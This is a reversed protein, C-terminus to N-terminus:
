QIEDLSLLIQSTQPLFPFRNTRMNFSSFSFWFNLAKISMNSIAAGLRLIDGRLFYKSNQFSAGLIMNEYTEFSNM